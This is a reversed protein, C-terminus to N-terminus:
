AYVVQPTNLECMMRFEASNEMLEAYSGEAIIRGKDLMYIYDFKNLLHLRHISSIIAKDHFAEFMRDYIRMETRPDVSSTPEDLLILESDKAALIGRALALRQKQGGSLNVGKERIDTLLGHPMQKIVESFDAIDCVNKIDAESCPLGLTVNYAITNEFIEPEQPFLTVKDQITDFPFHIDDITLVAHKEPMHLGRLLSLLTSKGSGSHGILAIKYGRKINLHLNHLAHNRLSPDHSFSLNSINVNKWALPWQMDRDPRHQKEYAQAIDAAGDINTQYQVLGSYQGAVNQFVSTFQSVYGLLTILGAMYFTAGPKWHQYIFGVVIVAYIVTIMMEATFWKRENIIANRRFPRYVKRVKALLGNEMSKELRLTTVTRINSLSDFLNSSVAHEKENVERLSQIFPKDFKSIVWIAVLGLLVAIGGFLPSFYVIAAVSFVFKCLTQLYSFGKDFFERLSDYAKKIRNITAGSHHDQHWKPNLHLTQHYKERMYNRSLTFALSREMVRAPGHFCWELFKLSIYAVVYILAFQLIRSTDQQAKNVFWGLLLPNLSLLINAVLFMSYILALKKKEKGAYKWSTRLLSVYPNKM